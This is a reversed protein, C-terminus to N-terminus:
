RKLVALVAAKVAPSTWVPVVEEIFRAREAADMSVDGRIDAKTHAYAVAPHKALEALKAHAVVAADDSVEDVLGLALASDPAHLGAGLLVQEHFRRPIRQTVIRLISPPFRLGIAVENLGMRTRDSRAIVRYDCCQALVCGGAIAHGAVLAVTPAPHNYIGECVEALQDLFGVMGPVDLTAVEKLNLGASFCDGAGTLLIPQGEAAKLGTLLRTMVDTGLANKGVGDIVLEYM